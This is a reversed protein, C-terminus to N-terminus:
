QFLEGQTLVPEVELPLKSREDRWAREIRRCAVSFWREDKEIGVFERGSEIAALGVTGGGMFPDLVIDGTTAEM